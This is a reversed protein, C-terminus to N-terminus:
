PQTHFHILCQVISPNLFRPEALARSLFSAGELLSLLQFAQQEINSRAVIEHRQVGLQLIHILWQMQEDLFARAQIQMRSPLCGMEAALAGSLPLEGNMHSHEFLAVFAFLREQTSPYRSEIQRLQASRTAHQEQIVAVGLDIKSPFHYHISAKRIGVQAALDAYSFAAYGKSQLLRRAAHILESRTDNPTDAM